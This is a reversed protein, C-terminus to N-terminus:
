DKGFVPRDKLKFKPKRTLVTDYELVVKAEPDTSLESISDGVVDLEICEHPMGTRQDTIHGVKVGRISAGPVPFGLLDGLTEYLIVIKAM